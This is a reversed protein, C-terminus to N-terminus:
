IKELIRNIERIIKNLPFYFISLLMFGTSNIICLHKIYDIKKISTKKCLDYIIVTERLEAKIKKLKSKNNNIYLSLEKNWKKQFTWMSKVFEANLNGSSDHFVDVIFCVYNNYKQSVAFSFDIDYFHFGAFNEEDYKIENLIDKKVFQFFGDIGIVKSFEENNPNRYHHYKYNLKLNDYNKEIRGHAVNGWSEGYGWSYMNKLVQMSGDFGIIGCKPTTQAFNILINGWNDTGFLVDEHMFCLYPSNANEACHNYIKCLGWNHERNDFVVIQHEVGITEAINKVTEECREPNVSSIIVTIESHIM